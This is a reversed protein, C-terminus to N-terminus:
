EDFLTIFSKELLSNVKNNFNNALMNLVDEYNINSLSKNFEM